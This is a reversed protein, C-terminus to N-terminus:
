VKTMGCNNSVVSDDNMSIKSTVYFPSTLRGSGTVPCSTIEEEKADIANLRTAFSNEDYVFLELRLQNSPHLSCKYYGTLIQLM